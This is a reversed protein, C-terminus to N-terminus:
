VTHALKSENLKYGVQLSPGCYMLVSERFSLLM